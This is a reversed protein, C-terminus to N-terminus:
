KTLSPSLCWMRLAKSTDDPYCVPASVKDEASSLSCVRVIDEGEAFEDIGEGVPLLIDILRQQDLEGASLHLDGHRFQCIFPAHGDRQRGCCM